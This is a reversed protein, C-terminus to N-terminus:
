GAKDISKRLESRRRADRFEPWSQAVGMASFLSEAAHSRCNIGRGPRVIAKITRAFAEVNRHARKAIETEPGVFDQFQKVARKAATGVDNVDIRFAFIECVNFLKVRLQHDHEVPGRGRMNTLVSWLDTATRCNVVALEIDLDDEYLEQKEARYELWAAHANAERALSRLRTAALKIENRSPAKELLDVHRPKSENDDSKLKRSAM